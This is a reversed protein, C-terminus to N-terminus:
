ELEHGDITCTAKQGIVGYTYEGDAPCIPEGRKLYGSLEARYPEVDVGNARGTEMAWQEKASEIQRLNNICSNRKSVLTAKAFSPVAIVAMLGIIAAVAMIETLTFGAHTRTNIKM